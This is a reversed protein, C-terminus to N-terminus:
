AWRLDFTLMQNRANEIYHIESMKWFHWLNFELMELFHGFNMVYFISSILLWCKVQTPGVAALPLLSEFKLRKLRVSINWSRIVRWIRLSKVWQMNPQFWHKRLPHSLIGQIRKCNCSGDETNWSCIVRQMKLTQKSDINDLKLKGKIRWLQSQITFGALYEIKYFFCLSCISVQIGKNWDHWSEFNM